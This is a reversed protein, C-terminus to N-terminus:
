IFFCMSYKHKNQQQTGNNPALHLKCLFLLLLPGFCSSSTKGSVMCIYCPPAEQLPSAPSPAVSTCAARRCCGRWPVWWKRWPARWAGRPELRVDRHHWVCWAQVGFLQRRRRTRSRGVIQPPTCAFAASTTHRRRPPGHRRLLLLRLFRESFHDALGSGHFDARTAPSHSGNVQGVRRSPPRRRLSERRQVIQGLLLSRCQRRTRIKGVHVLLSRSRTGRPM